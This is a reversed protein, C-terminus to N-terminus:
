YFERYFGLYGDEDESHRSLSAVNIISLYLLMSVRTRGIAAVVPCSSFFSVCFM